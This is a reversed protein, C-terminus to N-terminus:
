AGEIGDVVKLRSRASKRAPKVEARKAEVEDPAIRLRARAMSDSTLYLDAFMMRVTKRNEASAKREMGEIYQRVFMAVPEFIQDREWVIAQPKAWFQAWVESERDNPLDALPWPPPDGKRGEVPLTTWGDKDPKRDRRLAMPDPAPGSRARAGGSVM